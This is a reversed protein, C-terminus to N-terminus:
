KLGKLAAICHSVAMDYAADEANEPPQTPLREAECAAICQERVKAEIARAFALTDGWRELGGATAKRMAIIEDDTM